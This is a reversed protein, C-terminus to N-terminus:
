PPDRCGCIAEIGCRSYFFRGPDHQVCVKSNPSILLPTLPISLIYVHVFFEHGRSSITSPSADVVQRSGEVYAGSVFVCSTVARWCMQKVNSLVDLLATHAYLLLLGVHFRNRLPCAPFRQSMRHRFGYTRFRFRTQRCESPVSM